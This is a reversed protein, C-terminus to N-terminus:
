PGPDASSAPVPWPAPDAAAVSSKYLAAVDAASGSAVLRGERLLLGHSCLRQMATINHTVFLVTRGDTRAQDMKGLCREQFAMDGVALVEDVLLIEPDLHAAVSFALRMFMGSSYQRVPTDLLPDVEAFAVIQDFRRRVDSARMGLLIGNLFVNERGTLDPHFGAGVGLLSAVRGRTAVWGETPETIGAVMRLLTTKGSGNAGVIGVIEGQDVEFAVDRVAWLAGSRRRGRNTLTSWALSPLGAMAERVRKRRRAGIAYRKGLGEARIAPQGM